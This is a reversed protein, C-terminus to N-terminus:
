PTVPTLSHQGTPLQVPDCSLTTPGPQEFRTHTKNGKPANTKSAQELLLGSAKLKNLFKERWKKHHPHACVKQDTPLSLPEEWALVFDTWYPWLVVAIVSHVVKHTRLLHATVKDQCGPKDEGSGVDM